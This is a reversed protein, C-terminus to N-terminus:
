LSKQYTCNAHEILNRCVVVGSINHISQSLSYSCFQSFKHYFPLPYVSHHPNNFVAISLFNSLTKKRKKEICKSSNVKEEETSKCKKKVLFVDKVYNEIDFSVIHKFTPLRLIVRLMQLTFDKLHVECEFHLSFARVVHEPTPIIHNHIGNLLNNLEFSICIILLQQQM